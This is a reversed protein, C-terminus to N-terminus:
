GLRYIWKLRVYVVNGRFFPIEEATKASLIRYIQSDASFVM